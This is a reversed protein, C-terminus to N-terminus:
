SNAIQDLIERLRYTAQRPRNERRKRALYEREDREIASMRQDRWRVVIAVVAAWSRVNPSCIAQRLVDPTDRIARGIIARESPDDDDWTDWEGGEPPMVIGAEMAALHRWPKWEAGFHGVEWARRSAELQERTLRRVRTPSTM